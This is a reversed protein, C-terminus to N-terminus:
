FLTYIFPAAATASLLALLGILLLVVLLPALWWKKNHRLLAWLEAVVGQRRHPGDGFTHGQM